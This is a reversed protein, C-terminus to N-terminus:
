GRRDAFPIDVPGRRLHSRRGGVGADRAKQKKSDVKLSLLGVHEIILGYGVSAFLAVFLAVFLLVDRAPFSRPVSAGGGGGTTGSEPDVPYPRLRRRGKGDLLRM